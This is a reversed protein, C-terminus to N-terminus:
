GASSSASSPESMSGLRRSTNSSPSGSVSNKATRQLPHKLMADKIWMGFALIEHFSPLDDYIEQLSPVLSHHSTGPQELFVIIWHTFSEIKLMALIYPNHLYANNSVPFRRYYKLEFLLDSITQDMFPIPSASGAM